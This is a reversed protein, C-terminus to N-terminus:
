TEMYLEGSFGQTWWDTLFYGYLVGASVAGAITAKTRWEREHQTIPDDAMDPINYAAQENATAHFSM